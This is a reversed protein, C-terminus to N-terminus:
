QQAGKTFHQRNDGIRLQVSIAYPRQPAAQARLHRLPPQRLRDMDIAERGIDGLRM